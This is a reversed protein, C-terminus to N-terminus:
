SAPLSTSPVPESQARPRPARRGHPPGAHDPLGLDYPDLRTGLFRLQIRPDLDAQAPAPGPTALSQLAATGLVRLPTLLHEHRARTFLSLRTEDMGTTGTRNSVVGSDGVGVDDRVRQPDFLFSKALKLHAGAVRAQANLLRYLGALLPYTTVLRRLESVSLTGLSAPDLGAHELAAVPLAPRAQLGALMARETQLLGPSVRRVHEAYTPLDMGLLLDRILAEPDLAGSPPIDGPQWHVAFQRFVDMFHTVRLGAGPPRDAFDNNLERLADLLRVAWAVRSLAQPSGLGISGQALPLLEANVAKELAESAKLLGFFRLEDVAGTYTRVMGDEFVSDLRALVQGDCAVEVAPVNWRVLSAYSDRGCHGTGSRDALRAFYAGFPEAGAGVRLGAFAQAPTARHSADAEQYHRGVSAGALGLVVVLQQAQAPTLRDAPPLLALVDTGFEQSFAEPAARNALIDRNLVTLRLLCWQNVQEVLGGPAPETV